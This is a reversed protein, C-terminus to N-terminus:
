DRLVTHSLGLYINIPKLMWETCNMYGIYKKRLHCLRKYHHGKKIEKDM